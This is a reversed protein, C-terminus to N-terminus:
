TLTTEDSETAVTALDAGAPGQVPSQMQVCSLAFVKGARLLRGKWCPRPAARLVVWVPGGVSLAVAPGRDRTRKHHLSHRPVQSAGPPPVQLPHPSLSPNALSCGAWVSGTFLFLLAM